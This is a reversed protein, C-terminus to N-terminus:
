KEAKERKSSKPNKQFFKKPPEDDDYGRDYILFQELKKILEERTFERLLIGNVALSIVGTEESVILVVADSQESIGLGARHRTGLNIDVNRNSTLPLICGAAFLKGDRIISAGDHLPAKNFFINGFLAVSTEADIITGTAAIDSLMTEREFVLLAGTKSRSFLVATDAADVISKEVAKKWEDGKHHKTFIKIYKKYTNNRGMQELAKRIEPQFIIAIVVVAAEFFTRLLSSLMVLGFLSSLYYVILLMIVGKLLQVARTEQILKFLGFILLAIALIDVIDRLQITKIISLISNFIELRSEGEKIKLNRM